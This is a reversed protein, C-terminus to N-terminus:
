GQVSSGRNDLDAAAVELPGPRLRDSRPGDRVRYARRPSGVRQRDGRWAQWSCAPRRRLRPRVARRAVGGVGMDLLARRLEVSGERSIGGDRRRGASEYQAPTLGGARYVQRASPWRDLDGVAAAYAAARLVGWGPVTTLVQYRTAPLLGSLRDAAEAVQADLAGLLALDFVLV